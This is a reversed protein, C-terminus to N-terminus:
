LRWPLIRSLKYPGTTRVRWVVYLLPGGTLLLLLTVMPSPGGGAGVHPLRPHRTVVLLSLESLALMGGVVLLPLRRLMTGGGASPPRGASSWGSRVRATRRALGGTEPAPARREAREPDDAAVGPAHPRGGRRRGGPDGNGHG